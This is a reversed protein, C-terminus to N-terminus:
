LRATQPRIHFGLSRLFAFRKIHPAERYFIGGSFDLPIKTKTPAAM